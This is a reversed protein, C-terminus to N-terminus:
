ATALLAAFFLCSLMVSLCSVCIVFIIWVFLVAKSPDTFISSPKFMNPPVLMGMHHGQDPTTSIQISELDKCEELGYIYWIRQICPSLQAVM